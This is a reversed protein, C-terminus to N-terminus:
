TSLLKLLDDVTYEVLTSFDVTSTNGIPNELIHYENCGVFDNDRNIIDLVTNVNTHLYNHKVAYDYLQKVTIPSGIM